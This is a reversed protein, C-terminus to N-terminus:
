NASLGIGGPAAPTGATFSFPASAASEGWANRAKATVTKAGTGIGAIDWKLIVSGDTQRTAPVVVPPATGVTVLFEVPQPGSSPYPDCLLFPAATATSCLAGLLVFLLKRLNKV